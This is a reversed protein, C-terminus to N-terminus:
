RWHLCVAAGRRRVTVATIVGLRGVSVQLAKWLFPHSSKSVQVLTGAYAQQSFVRCCCCALM